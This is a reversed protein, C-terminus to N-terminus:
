GGVYQSELRVNDWVASATAGLCAIALDYGVKGADTVPDTTYSGTYRHLENDNAVTGTLTVLDIGDWPVGSRFDQRDFGPPIAVLWAKFFGSAVGGSIAKDYGFDMTVTYKVRNIDITGIVGAATCLGSNTYKFSYTQQNNEQSSAWDGSTKNNLGHRNSGFGQNAGVWGTPIPPQEDYGVVVPSEFTEQFLLRVPFKSAMNRYKVINLSM